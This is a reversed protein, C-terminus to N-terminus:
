LARQLILADVPPQGAHPYYGKRRGKEMFGFRAYLKRASTNDEAVELFLSRVGLQILQPMHMALLESAIGRGREKPHVAVSLIEAEDLAYRSMIFGSATHGVKYVHTIVSRDCLLAAIEPAGWGRAFSVAHLNTLAERDTAVDRTVYGKQQKRFPWM